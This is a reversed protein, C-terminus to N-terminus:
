DTERTFASQFQKNCINAKDVTDTKLIGNECLSTIGFADKKLSKSFGFLTKKREKKIYVTMRRRLCELCRRNDRRSDKRSDKRRKKLSEWKLQGLIGTM